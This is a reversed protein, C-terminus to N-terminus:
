VWLDQVPTYEQRDSGPVYFYRGGMEPNVIAKTWDIGLAWYITAELDEHRIERDRRWGADRIRAGTDDTSGLARGGRVGGGAVLASQLLAHDRGQAPTLPGATRGFEGIAIVLTENLAGSAKLDAILSGLGSDLQRALSKPNGADLAGPAYINGHHDWDGFNIQIFRPGLKRTLLNRAVACANGFPSDGYRVREAPAVTFAADIAANFILSRASKQYVADEEILPTSPGPTALRALLAARRSYREKGEPHMAIRLGDGKTQSVLFPANAAPLFGEGPISGAVANLCVYAPLPANPNQPALESAIVSGIHPSLRADPTAPNRGIQLWQRALSHEEAWSRVSRILVIDDLAESLVPLLGRPFHIGRFHTPDFNRPTWPGVKLDFTDVQSIGGSLFVFVVNKVGARTSRQQAAAGPLLCYGGVASGFHRFFLRRHNRRQEIM